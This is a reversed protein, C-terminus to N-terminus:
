YPLSKGAFNQNFWTEVVERPSKEQNDVLYNLQQMEEENIMGSLQKIVKGVQPYNILTQQNFVPVAEYPPFYQKNDELIVLNLVPILGDTGSGAVLDVEKSVLAQYLLGLDMELPPQSFKLNYTKALGQYGDERSLFEYGFGARWNPTYAAVDSLTKIKYKKADNRRIVIAFTNNFGLSPFVTLQYNEQYFHKVKQYVTKANNEPPEKLIATLATGTYEVYGDIEGTKVAEHCIFTGGLNFKREVKLNTQREIQQALIEGLIVQETFNKSGIVIRDLKSKNIQSFSLM